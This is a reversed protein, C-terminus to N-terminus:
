IILLPWDRLPVPLTPDVDNMAGMAVRVCGTGAPTPHTPIRATIGIPSTRRPVM